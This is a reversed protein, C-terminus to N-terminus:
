YYINMVEPLNCGYAPLTQPFFFGANGLGVGLLPHLNFINWGAVWYVVREAFSLYAFLIYINSTLLKLIALSNIMYIRALRSDLHSLGYVLVVASLFYVGLFIFFILVPILYRASRILFPPFRDFYKLSWAQFRKAIHFNVYIVLFATVLLFSLTGIRSSLFLVMLGIALLINEISIKGLRHRFTSWGTIIAALWFPLYLLNLQQGLWSPEYAFGSMRGPFFDRISIIRQFRIILEPYNGQFLYIYVAQILAWSLLILGSVNVLKLTLTLRTRSQSLWSATVMYFAAGIMLTLLAKSEEGLISQDKFTPIDLFFAFASYIVAVFIFFLFPLSERQLTGKKILYVVFWFFVLWALPIISAPAVLTGNAVAGFRNSLTRLSGATTEAIPFLLYIEQCAHFSIKFPFAHSSHKSLYYPSNLIL